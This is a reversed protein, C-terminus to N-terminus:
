FKFKGGLTYVQPMPIFYEGYAGMPSNNLQFNGKAEISFNDNIDYGMGSIFGVRPTMPKSEPNKNTEMEIELGSFIYLNKNMYWKGTLNTRIRNTMLYTDYFGNLDLKLRESINYRIIFASHEEGNLFIPYSRGEIMLKKQSVGNDNPREETLQGSLIQVFALCVCVIIKEM